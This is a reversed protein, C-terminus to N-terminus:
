ALSQPDLSSYFPFGRLLDCDLTLFSKKKKASKNKIVHLVGIGRASICESFPFSDENFIDINVCNRM